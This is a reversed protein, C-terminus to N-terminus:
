GRKNENDKDRDCYAAKEHHEHFNIRNDRFALVILGVGLTYVTLM